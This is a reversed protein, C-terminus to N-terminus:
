CSVARVSLNLWNLCACRSNERLCGYVALLLRIICTCLFHFGIGIIGIIHIYAIALVLLALCCIGGTLGYVARVSM